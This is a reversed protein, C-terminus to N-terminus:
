PILNQDMKVHVSVAQVRTVLDDAKDTTENGACVPVDAAQPTTTLAHQDVQCVMGRVVLAGTITETAGRPPWLPRGVMPM